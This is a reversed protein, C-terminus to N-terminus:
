VSFDYTLVADPRQLFYGQIYDVGCQWLTTLNTAEQVFTAITKAENARAAQVIVKIAAETRPDSALKDMFSGALRIFEVPLKELHHLSEPHTGFHDLAIRCGISRLSKVLEQVSDFLAMASAEKIEFVISGMPLDAATLQKKVWNVLGKDQLSDESLKVFFNTEKGGSRRQALAEVALSVVCRDVAVMFGTQEAIPMFQGPMIEEGGDGIMRVLVEYNEAMEAHLNVIPQYVLRFRREAVAAEILRRMRADQEHNVPPRMEEETKVLELPPPATRPASPALEVQALQPPAAAPEATRLILQICPHEGHVAAGAEMSVARQTNAVSIKAEVTGSCETGATLRQLTTTFTDRADTDLAQVIREMGWANSTADGWFSAWAPNAHVVRGAQLLAAPWPLARLLQQHARESLRHLAEFHVRARRQALDKLERQVIAVLRDSQNRLVIDRAGLRMFEVAEEQKIRLPAVIVVPIDRKAHSLLALAQQPSFDSLRASSLLLDWDQKKLCVQFELMSKVRSATIAYGAERLPAILEQAETTSDEMVMLRLPTPRQSPHQEVALDMYGTSEQDKADAIYTIDANVDAM